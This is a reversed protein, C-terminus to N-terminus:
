HGNGIIEFSQVLPIGAALMTALQRRFIAIDGATIKSAGKFLGQSQKRIRSPVVGQRRLEARVQAENGAMSKGKVKNGKRDTGEWLFPTNSVATTQAM